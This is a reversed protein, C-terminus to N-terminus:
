RRAIRDAIERLSVGNLSRLFQDCCPSFLECDACSIAADNLFASPMRNLM